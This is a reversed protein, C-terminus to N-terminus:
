RRNREGFLVTVNIRRNEYGSRFSLAPTAHFLDSDFIVARNSRYPIVRPQAKRESLLERIKGGNRNYMAFDWSGPAKVDYMVLGGGNPDLNAEDPTIWFNVNVAAFDAHPSLNPQTNAYKYAWIQTVPHRTGLVRPMAARLEEAIQVLLPCAFGDRFFAGLRGYDYRNNSWVTSELCFARLSALADPSLFDDVVVVQPTRELYEGEVGAGDWVPSLARPVRPTERVHVLRNYVHGVQARAVGILPVRADDGLPRLTDLLGDYRAIVPTLEDGLIGRRQLYELQEIDHLLKGPTLVPTWPISAPLEPDDQRPAPYWRTARCLAAYRVAREGALPLDGAQLAAGILDGLAGPTEAPPAPPLAARSDAAARARSRAADNRAWYREAGAGNAAGYRHLGALLAIEDEALDPHWLDLVLVVRRRDSDNWVEHVFSDDFVLCRGEEWTRTVEGVRIGCGEPVDLALHCRLRVSTPGQHPAVRSRPDLSSFYMLGAHTTLTRHRELISRLAPCRALNDENRRGMELLFLVSWRGERDIDEAEDQFRAADFARAEAAIQPALRELDAVIAFDRAEHWPEVRLGPYFPLLPREANSRLGELYAAFRPPLGETKAPAPPPAAADVPTVSEELALLADLQTWLRPPSGAAGKVLARARRVAAALEGDGARGDRGVREAVQRWRSLRLRKDWAVGWADFAVLARDALAAAEEGRGAALALVAAVVLPEGVPSSAVPGLPGAVAASGAGSLLARYARRLSTEEDGTMVATGGEFVPPAIEVGARAAALLQGAAALWRGPSGRPLSSQEALNAAHIVMLEALDRRDLRVRVDPWRSALAVAGDGPPTTAAALLVGRTCACFAFILREADAGVLERVRARERRGFLCYGYAETSYASHLLGALRVREPQGWGRLIDHVGVLHQELSGRAHGVLDARRRALERAVDAARGETRLLLINAM